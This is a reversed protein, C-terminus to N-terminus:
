VQKGKFFGSVRKFAAFRDVFTDNTREYIFNNEKLRLLERFIVVLGRINRKQSGNDFYNTIFPMTDFPFFIM